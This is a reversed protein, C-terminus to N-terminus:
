RGCEVPCVTKYTSRLFRGSLLSGWPMTQVRKDAQPSVFPLNAVGRSAQFGSTLSVQTYCAGESFSAWLRQSWHIFALCWGVQPCVTYFMRDEVSWPLLDWGGTAILVLSPSVRRTWPSQYLSSDSYLSVREGAHKWKQNDDAFLGTHKTNMIITILVDCLLMWGTQIMCGRWRVATVGGPNTM